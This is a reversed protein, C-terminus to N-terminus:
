KTKEQICGSCCGYTVSENVASEVEGALDMPFNKPWDTITWEGYEIHDEWDDDFWVTGGSLLCNKPFEWEEDDITVILVGSCLNPYLGSYSIKIKQRSM